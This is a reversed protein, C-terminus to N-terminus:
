SRWESAAIPTFFVVSSGAEPKCSDSINSLCKIVKKKLGLYNLCKAAPLINNYSTMLSFFHFTVCLLRIIVQMVTTIYHLISLDSKM